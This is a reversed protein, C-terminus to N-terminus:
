HLPELLHSFGRRLSKYFHHTAAGTFMDFVIIARPKKALFFYCLSHCIELAAIALKLYLVTTALGKHKLLDNIAIKLTLTLPQASLGWSAKTSM